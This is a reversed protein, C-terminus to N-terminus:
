TVKFQKFLPTQSNPDVVLYDSATFNAEYTASAGKALSMPGGLFGFGGYPPKPTENSEFLKQVDQLSKGKPIRLFFFEHAKSDDNKLLLTREGSSIKPVTFGSGSATM